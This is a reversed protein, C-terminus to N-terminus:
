AARSARGSHGAFPSASTTRGDDIRFRQVLQMLADAEGALHHSAASTEGVMAGNQQTMQDMQNGSSNIDQLAASQDRSATAITHVHQSVVVIEQSITALVQGAQQVLAAGSAVESSSQNILQKIESAAAASRQALERVEQAVVAFGKGAEGARAAEIGANLALLNTQFAIDDIVEIIVEIKQSAEEIRGMADVANRVVTGSSDASKKTLAVAENAERARDASSRVATTIQDVAAAAEELSAAQSETRRALEASSQSLDASSKQISLTSNRIHALTDRLRIVSSNFDTRLQELRGSFATDITVSLDGQALKSLAGALETVATDIQRDVLQKEQDNRQREAEAEARDAGSRAEIRRKERNTEAFVELARAINGFENDAQTYPITAADDGKSLAQVTGTLIGLPRILARIAFFSVLAMVLLAALSSAIVVYGSSAIHAFYLEMPIGIFLVGSVAGSADTMPFYGTMFDKGFLMAAGFYPKGAALLPQAPHDVALKTGIAREGKETKVNTSVRVYDSGQKEFVTAVGGIATATRDVLDHGDLKAKGGQVRRVTGDAIEAVTGPVEAEYVLALTRMAKRADQRATEMIDNRLNIYALGGVAMVAISILSLCLIMIRSAVSAPLIAKM